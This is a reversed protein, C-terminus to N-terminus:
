HQLKMTKSHQCFARRWDRWEMESLTSPSSPPFFSFNCFMSLLRFKFRIFLSFSFCDYLTLFYNWLCLNPFSYHQSQFSPHKSQKQQIPPPPVVRGNIRKLRKLSLYLSHHHPLPNYFSNYKAVYPNYTLRYQMRCSYSIFSYKSCPVNYM